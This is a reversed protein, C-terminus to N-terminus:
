CSLINGEPTLPTSCKNLPRHHSELLALTATHASIHLDATTQKCMLWLCRSSTIMLRRPTKVALAVAGSAAFIFSPLNLAINLFLSLLTNTRSSTPTCVVCCMYSSMLSCGGVAIVVLLLRNQPLHSQCRQTLTVKFIHKFVWVRTLRMTGATDQRVSQNQGQVVRRGGRQAPSSRTCFLRTFFAWLIFPFARAFVQFRALASRNGNKAPSLMTKHLHGLNSHSSLIWNRGRVRRSDSSLSQSVAWRHM